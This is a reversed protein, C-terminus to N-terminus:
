LTHMLFYAPLFSVSPIGPVRGALWPSPLHIGCTISGPREIDRPDKCFLSHGEATTSARMGSHLHEFCHKIDEIRLPEGKHELSNLRLPQSIRLTPTRMSAPRLHCTLGASGRSRSAFMSCVVHILRTTSMSSVRRLRPRLV